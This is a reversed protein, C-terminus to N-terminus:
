EQEGEQWDECLRCEKCEENPVLCSWGYEEVLIKRLEMDYWDGVSSGKYCKDAKPLRKARVDIYSEAALTDCYLGRMKAKNRTEAFVVLCGESYDTWINYAKMRTIESM